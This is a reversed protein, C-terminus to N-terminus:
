LSYFPMPKGCFKRKKQHFGYPRNDTTRLVYIKEYGFPSTAKNQLLGM